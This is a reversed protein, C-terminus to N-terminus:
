NAKSSPGCTYISKDRVGSRIFMIMQNLYLIWLMQLDCQTKLHNVWYMPSTKTETDTSEPEPYQKNIPIPSYKTKDKTIEKSLIWFLIWWFLSIRVKYCTNQKSCGSFGTRSQQAMDRAGSFLVFSIQIRLAVSLTDPLLRWVVKEQLYAYRWCQAWAGCKDIPRQPLLSTYHM